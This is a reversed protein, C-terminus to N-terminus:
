ARASSQRVPCLETAPVLPASPQSPVSYALGCQTFEIGGITGQDVGACPYSQSSQTGAYHKRVCM